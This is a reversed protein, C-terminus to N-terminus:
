KMSQGSADRGDDINRDQREKYNNIMYTFGISISRSKLMTYSNHMYFDTGFTQRDYVSSNLVDSVSVNVKLKQDMFAKSLYISFYSRQNSIYKKSATEPSYSLYMSADIGFWLKLSMRASLMKSYGWDSLDENLYSGESKTYKYTFQLYLMSIFDPLHFPAMPSNYYPLTLDVGYVKNSTLNVPSSYSISDQYNATVYQYLGNSLVYYVNIYQSLSVAYSNLFYPKIGPNGATYSNPGNYQKYPNVYYLEPYRVRRFANFTLQFLDSLKYSLNFNPFFNLFNQTFNENTTIQEGNTNLNETRIGAKVGWKGFNNSYTLYLAHINEKYRFLNSLNLSDQWSNTLYSYDLANNGNGRHRYTFNYGTEFKGIDSPIVYDTKFIFTNANEVSGSNHLQPTSSQYSYMTNLNNSNPSYINAYYADFTLEKGKKDFKKKYFGYLTFNNWTYDANSNNDYSYQPTFLANEVLSYSDSNFDYKSKNYSGYFTFSNSEDLDYDFGLKLNGFFGNGNNNYNSSLSYLNASNYNLKESSSNSNFDGFYGFSSAFVNIKNVKYNLNIGGYNRNNSSTNLSISGNFNNLTNKKTIINLIYAGGEASEKAGPSLIVEVQDVMSAPLQALMNQPMDFPHGDMELKVAQGRVTVVNSQPDVDVVGSNKLADTLSGSSGPVQDINIVQKDIQFEIMPKISKVVVEPMLITTSRLKILGLRSTKEVSVSDIIKTQYGVMSFKARINGETIKDVTFFGKADTTTGTITRGDKRSIITVNAGVLSTGLASDAVAGILKYNEKEQAFILNSFILASIILASILKM